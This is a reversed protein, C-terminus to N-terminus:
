QGGRPGARMKGLFEELAQAVLSSLTRQRQRAYGKLRTVLTGSLKVTFVEKAEPVEVRGGDRAKEVYRRAQRESIRHRTGLQRAADPVSLGSDLLEVAANVRRASQDARARRGQSAM